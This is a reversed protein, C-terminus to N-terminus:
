IFLVQLMRDYDPFMGDEWWQMHYLDAEYLVCRNYVMDASLEVQYVDNKDFSYFRTGGKCEEPTNLYIVCAFMVDISDRHPLGKYFERMLSDNTINCMFGAKNWSLEFYDYVRGNATWKDPTKRPSNWIPQSVWHRFQEKLEKAVRYDDEFVRHGPFNAILHSHTERTKKPSDICYQRVEDPNKYFNDIILVSRQEPGIGSAVSIDFEKNLEFM